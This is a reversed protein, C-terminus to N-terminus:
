IVTLIKPSEWICINLSFKTIHSLVRGYISLFSSVNFESLICRQLLERVYLLSTFSESINVNTTELIM